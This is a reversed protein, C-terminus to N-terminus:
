YTRLWKMKNKITPENERLFIFYAKEDNGDIKNAIGYWDDFIASFQQSSL